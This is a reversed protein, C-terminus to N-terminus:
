KNKKKKYGILLLFLVIGSIVLAGIWLGINSNDGTPPTDNKEDTNKDTFTVTISVEGEPQVYSYTGDGNDTVPIENGTKDKVVVKDVTKGDDPHPTIVVTDGAEPNEDSVEVNGGIPEEINVKQGDNDDDTESDSGEALIYYLSGNTVFTIDDNEMSSDMVSCNGNTALTCVVLSTFSDMCSISVTVGNANERNGESDVLYICYSQIPVGIEATCDTIWSQAQTDDDPIPIIVVYKIHADAGTIHITTGNEITLTASGNKIKSIYEGDVDRTAKAYVHIQVDDEAAFATISLSLILILALLAAFLRKM